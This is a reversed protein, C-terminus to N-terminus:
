HIVKLCVAFYKFYARHICLTYLILFAKYILNAKSMLHYRCLFPLHRIIKQDGCINLLQVFICYKLVDAVLILSRHM